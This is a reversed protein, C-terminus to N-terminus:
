PGVCPEAEAFHNNPLLHLSLFLVSPHTSTGLEMVPCGNSLSYVRHDTTDEESTLCQGLVM